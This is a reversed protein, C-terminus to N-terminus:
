KLAPFMVHDKVRFPLSENAGLLADRLSGDSSSCLVSFVVM